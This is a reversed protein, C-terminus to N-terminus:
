LAVSMRPKNGHGVKAIGNREWLWTQFDKKAREAEPAAAVKEFTSAITEVWERRGDGWTSYAGIEDCAAKLEEDKTLDRVPM